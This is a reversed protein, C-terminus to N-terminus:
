WRGKKNGQKVAIAALSTGNDRNYEIARRLIHIYTNGTRKAKNWSGQPNRRRDTIEQM